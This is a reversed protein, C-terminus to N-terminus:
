NKRKRTSPHRPGFAFRRNRKENSVPRATSIDIAPFARGELAHRVRNDDPPLTGWSVERSHHEVRKKMEGHAAPRLTLQPMLVISSALLWPRALLVSPLDSNEHRRRIVKMDRSLRVRRVGCETGLVSKDLAPRCHGRSSQSLFRPLGSQPKMRDCM